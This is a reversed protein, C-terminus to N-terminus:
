DIPKDLGYYHEYGNFCAEHFYTRYESPPETMYLHDSSEDIFSGCKHCYVKGGDTVWTGEFDQNGKIRTIM